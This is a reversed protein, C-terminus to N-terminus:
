ECCVAASVSRHFCSYGSCEYERVETDDAIVSGMGAISLEGGSGARRALDVALAAELMGGLCGALAAGAAAGAMWSASM